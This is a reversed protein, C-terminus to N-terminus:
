PGIAASPSSRAPLRVRGVGGSCASLLADGTPYSHRVATELPFHFRSTKTEATREQFSM